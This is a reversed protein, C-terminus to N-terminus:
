LSFFKFFQNTRASSLHLVVVVVAATCFFRWPSISFDSTHIWKIRQECIEFGRRLYFIHLQLIYRQAAEKRKMTAESQHVFRGTKVKSTHTHTYMVSSIDTVLDCFWKYKSNKEGCFAYWKKSPQHTRWEGYWPCMKNMTEQLQERIFACMFRWWWIRTLTNHAIECASACKCLPLCKEIYKSM